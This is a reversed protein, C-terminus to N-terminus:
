EASKKVREKQEVKGKFIVSPDYRERFWAENEHGAVFAKPHHEKHYRKYNDYAKQLVSKDYQKQQLASFQQFTM